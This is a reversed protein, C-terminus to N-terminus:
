SGRVAEMVAVSSVPEGFACADSVADCVAELRGNLREVEAVLVRADQRIEELSEIMVGADPYVTLDVLNIRGKIKKLRDEHM